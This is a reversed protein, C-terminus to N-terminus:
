LDEWAVATELVAIKDKMDALENSLELIQYSDTSNFCDENCLNIRITDSAIRAGAANYWDVSYYWGIYKGESSNAGYYTWSATEADYAAVPLWIISYKRGFEDVGAYDNGEFYYMTTDSITQGMDEKFSTADAPAYAKVGIYYSNVDANAGSPRLAWQTDAPCMVRIENDGYKVLTGTPKDSVEYSRPIYVYPLSDVALKDVSSMAGDTTRTAISLALGNDSLSLGHAHENDLMLGIKSDVIQIGQGATYTEVVGKLPVYIHKKSPDNMVLDLYPDGITAGEYPVNEVVVIEFTADQLVLDRPINIADGVYVTNDGDTKKLRYIAAYDEDDTAQREITYEPVEMADLGAVFLGDENLTLKNGDQQSINVKVSKGSDIEEISMSGDAAILDFTGAVLADLKRKDEPSLLGALEATAQRGVGFCIDGM